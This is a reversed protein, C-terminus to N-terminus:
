VAVALASDLAECFERLASYKRKLELIDRRANAYMKERLADESAARVTSVYQQEDDIHVFARVPPADPVDTVMVVCSILESACQLFWKEAARETDWDWCVHLPSTEQRADELVIRPTLQGHKKELRALYSGIIQPNGRFRKNFEYKTNV